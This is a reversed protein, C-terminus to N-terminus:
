KAAPEVPENPLGDSIKKIIDVAADVTDALREIIDKTEPPFSQFLKEANDLASKDNGLRRLVVAVTGGAVVASIVSFGLGALILILTSNEM